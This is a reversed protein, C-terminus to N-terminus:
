WLGFLGPMRVGFLWAPVRGTREPRLEFSGFRGVSLVNKSPLSIEDAFKVLLCSPLLTKSIYESRSQSLDFVELIRFNALVTVFLTRRGEKTVSLMHQGLALHSRCRKVSSSGSTTTCPVLIRARRRTTCPEPYTEFNAPFVPPKVIIRCLSFLHHSRGVKHGIQKLMRNARSTASMSKSLFKSNNLSRSV